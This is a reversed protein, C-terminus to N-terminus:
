GESMWEEALLKTAARANELRQHAIRRTYEFHFGDRLRADWYGYLERKEAGDILQALGDGQRCLQITQLIIGTVGFDELNIADALLRADPLKPERDPMQELLTLTRDLLSEDASADDFLKPLLEISLTARDRLRTKVQSKGRVAKDGAFPLQLAYCSLELAALDATTPVLNMSLMKQLRRWLRAADDVLRPGEQSREDLSRLIRGLRKVLGADLPMVWVDGERAGRERHPVVAPIIRSHMCRPSDSKAYKQRYKPNREQAPTGLVVAYGRNGFFIRQRVDNLEGVSEIASALSKEGRIHTPDDKPRNGGGPLRRPQEQGLHHHSRISDGADFTGQANRGSARAASM